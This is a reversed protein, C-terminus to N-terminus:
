NSSGRERENAPRGTRDLHDLRGASGSQTAGSELARDYFGIAQQPNARQMAIAALGLLADVNQEDAQLATRYLAEAQELRGAELAQYAENVGSTLRAPPRATRSIEEDLTQM